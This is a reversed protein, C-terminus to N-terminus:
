FNLSEEYNFNNKGGALTDKKSQALDALKKIEDLHQQIQEIQEVKKPAVHKLVDKETINKFLTEEDQYNSFIQRHINHVVGILAYLTTLKQILDGSIVEKQAVIGETNITALNLRGLFTEISDKITSILKKRAEKFAIRIANVQINSTEIRERKRTIEGKEIEPSTWLHIKNQSCLALVEEVDKLNGTKLDERVLSNAILRMISLNIQINIGEAQGAGIFHRFTDIPRSLYSSWRGGLSKDQVLDLIISKEQWEKLFIDRYRDLIPMSDNDEDYNNEYGVVVNWDKDEKDALYLKRIRSDIKEDDVLIQIDPHTNEKESAHIPRVFAFGVIL